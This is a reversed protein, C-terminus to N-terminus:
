RGLLAMGVAAGTVAAIVNVVDNDVWAQGKVLVGPVGCGDIARESTAGCAPCRYVAQLIAGALSDAVSGAIGALAVAAASAAPAQAFGPLGPGLTAAVAILAAGLVSGGTGLPTVGGSTGRPVPLGSVISRPVSRSRRGIETAWTDATVAALSGALGALWLPRGGPDLAAMLACLTAAGGNAAVQVADRRAGRRAIRDVGRSARSLLSSTTFFLVLLAGALWGGAGAVITGTLWAAVAGSTSLSGARRAALAIAAALVAAALTRTLADNM